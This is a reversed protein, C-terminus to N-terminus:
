HQSKHQTTKRWTKSLLHATVTACIKKTTCTSLRRKMVNVADVADAMNDTNALQAYTKGADDGTDDVVEDKIVELAKIESNKNDIQDNTNALLTHLGHIKGSICDAFNIKWGEDRPDVTVGGCLDRICGGEVPLKELTFKKQNQNPGIRIPYSCPDSSYDNRNGRECFPVELTEHESEHTCPESQEKITDTYAKKWQTPCTGEHKDCYQCVPCECNTPKAFWGGM